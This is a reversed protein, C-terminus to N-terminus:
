TKTGWANWLRVGRVAAAASRFVPRAKARLAKDRLAAKGRGM